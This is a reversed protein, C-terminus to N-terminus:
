LLALLLSILNHTVNRIRVDTDVIELIPLLVLRAVAKEQRMTMLVMQAAQRIVPVM